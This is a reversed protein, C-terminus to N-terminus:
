VSALLPFFYIILYVYVAFLHHELKLEDTLGHTRM